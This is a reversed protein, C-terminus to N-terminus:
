AVQFTADGTDYTLAKAAGAGDRFKILTVKDTDTLALKFGTADILCTAETCGGVMAVRIASNIAPATGVVSEYELYALNCASLTNSAADGSQVNIYLGRADSVTLNAADIDLQAYVGYAKELISPGGAGLGVGAVLSSLGIATDLNVGTVDSTNPGNSARGYVGEAVGSTSAVHVVANGRLGRLTGTLANTKHYAYGYIMTTGGATTVGTTSEGVQMTANGTGIMKDASTDWWLLASATEGYMRFDVGQGDLGLDVTSGSVDFLVFESASGLFVKFDIDATGNGINISGTDTTAPSIQLISGTWNANVDGGSADGFQLIDSDGLKLDVDELKLLSDGVDFVVYKAAGNLFVKFDIDTTGDGINITGTDDAAPTIQLIASTWNISVDGGAADGFQLIDGDGLKLDVDELKLLSDGVDFVVYKAAGNLFVKFDIDTTGDGINITGTDDAAPSIQLISGTWNLTVDSADGFKLFDTDGLALDVADMVLADSGGDWMLYSTSASGYFYIDMATSGDGFKINADTKTAYFQLNSQYWKSRINSSTMTEEM